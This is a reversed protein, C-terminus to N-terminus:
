NNDSLIGDLMTEAQGKTLSALKGITDIDGDILSMKRICYGRKGIPPKESTIFYVYDGKVEGYDPLKTGFFAMAGDSFWHGSPRLKNYKEIIEDISM